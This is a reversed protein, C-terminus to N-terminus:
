IDTDRIRECVAQQQKWHRALCHDGSLVTKGSGARFPFETRWPLVLNRKAIQKL